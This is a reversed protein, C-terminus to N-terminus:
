ELTGRLTRKGDDDERLQYGSRDRYPVSAREWEGEKRRGTGKERGKEEM